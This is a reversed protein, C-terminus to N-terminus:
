PRTGPNQEIWQTPSIGHIRLFERHFNSKTNFGSALFSATVPAGTQLLHCAHDIRFRNVYRSVNEGHGQNVAASLVKSPVGLKRALSILTLDPNMWPQAERMYTDLRALLASDDGQAEPPTHTIPGSKLESQNPTETTGSANSEPHADHTTESVTWEPSLGVLGLTLLVLSSMVDLIVTRGQGSQLTLDLSIVADGLASMWLSLAVIRWLWRPLNGSSLRALPLDSAPHRLALLLATGYGVFASIVLWDLAGPWLWRCILVLGPVAAHLVDSPRLPRVQVATFACWALPPLSAASVPQIWRLGTFGYHQVLAVLLSQAAVMGVLLLMMPHWRARDDRFGAKAAAYALVLAVVVPLPLTLM